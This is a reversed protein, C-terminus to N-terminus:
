PKSKKNSDRVQKKEPTKRSRRKKVAPKKENVKNEREQNDPNSTDIIAPTSKLYFEKDVCIFNKDVCYNVLEQYSALSNKDCFEKLTIRQKNLFYQLSIKM